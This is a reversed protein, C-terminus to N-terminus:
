TVLWRQRARADSSLCAVALSSSIHTLRRLRPLRSVQCMLLCSGRKTSTIPLGNKSARGNRTSISPTSIASLMTRIARRIRGSLRVLALGPLHAAGFAMKGTLTTNTVSIVATKAVWHVGDCSEEPTVTFDTTATTIDDLMAYIALQDFAGLL